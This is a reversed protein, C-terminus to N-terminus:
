CSLGGHGVMHEHGDFVTDLDDGHVARVFLVRQRCLHVLHQGIRDFRRIRVGIDPHRKICTRAVGEGRAIIQAVKGLRARCRHVFLRLVLRMHGSKQFVEGIGLLRDHRRHVAERDTDPHRHQKM